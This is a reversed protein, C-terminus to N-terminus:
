GVTKKIWNSILDLVAPDLTTEIDGYETLSGTECPQLLHNLGELLHTQVETNGGSALAERIAALNAEADVQIDKSGNIALVPCSVQRLVEAPQHHLLFRTWPTNLRLRNAQYVPEFQDAITRDSPSLADLWAEHNADVQELPIREGRFTEYIARNEQNGQLATLIGAESLGALRLMAMTQRDAIEMLNHGPAALLIQFAVKPQGLSVMPGILGGESHGLLGINSSDIEKRSALYNWAYLADAAFDETTALAHNGSSEGHGRDDYRLVAIGKRSLHDALVAFPKHRLITQDRDQPGSGSLLIVAPAGQGSRQSPLTLTGALLTGAKPNLFQVSDSRYASSSKPTQPRKSLIARGPRWVMETSQGQQTWTGKISEVFPVASRDYNPPPAEGEAGTRNNIDKFKAPATEIATKRDEAAKKSEESTPPPLSSEQKTIVLSGRFVAGITPIEVRLDTEGLSIEGLPIPSSLQNPSRFVGTLIGAEKGDPYFQMELPLHALSTRLKGSWAGLLREPGKVEPRPFPIEGLPVRSFRIPLSTGQRWVGDLTQGEESLCGEFYANITAATARLEGKDFEVLSFPIRSRGQDVSILEGRFEDNQDSEIFLALRLSRNGPLHLVGAWNGHPLQSLLKPQRLVLPKIAVPATPEAPPSETQEEPTQGFAASLFAVLILLHLTINM